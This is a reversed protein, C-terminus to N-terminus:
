LKIATLKLENPNTSLPHPTHFQAQKQNELKEFHDLGWYFGILIPLLIVWLGFYGLIDTIYILGFSTICYVLARALAFAFTVSTIRKLVPFHKIFIAESPNNEISVFWILCQVFLVYSPSKATFLIFPLVFVFISFAYFKIRTIKLPHIILTCFAIILTDGLDCLSVFFNNHIVREPTFGFTHKLIDGCYVYAIFFCVSAGCSIFFYAFFTKKDFHKNVAEKKARIFEPTERLRNRAISGIAAVSMGFWFAIRWDFGKLTFLSAIALAFTGGLAASVSVLTTVFYRMPPQFTEVLYTKASIIEGISSFGQLVRCLIMLYSATIGIQVYPPLTAMIICSLAMMLSTIIVTPKRGFTDGIWGFLLAAVPRLAFTTCFTFASLLSATRPDVKPFFLENLLVAM